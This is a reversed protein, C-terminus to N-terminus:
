AQAQSQGCSEATMHANSSTIDNKEEEESSVIVTTELWM